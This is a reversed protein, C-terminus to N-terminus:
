RQRPARNLVCNIANGPLLLRGVVHVYAATGDMWSFVLGARPAFLCSFTM